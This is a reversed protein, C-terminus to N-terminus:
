FVSSGGGKQELRGGRGGISKSWDRVWFIVNTGGKTHSM